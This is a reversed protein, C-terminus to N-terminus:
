RTKKREDVYENDEDHIRFSPFENRIREIENKYDHILETAPCKGDRREKQSCSTM